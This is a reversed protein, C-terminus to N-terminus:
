EIKISIKKRYIRITKALGLERELVEEGLSIAAWVLDGMM